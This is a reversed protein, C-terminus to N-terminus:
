FYHDRKESPEFCPLELIRRKHPQGKLVHFDYGEVVEKIARLLTQRKLIEGMAQESM